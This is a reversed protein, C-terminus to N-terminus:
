KLTITIDGGADSQEADVRQEKMLELMALFTGIVKVRDNPDEVIQRFTVAKQTQLSGLIRDIFVEIPISHYLINISTDLSIAKSLRAWLVVLDWIEMDRMPEEETEGAIKMRPRGFRRSQEEGRRGLARARDKYIKYELLRRILELSTDEEEEEEDDAAEAPLLSRTKILLLQSAVTLFDGALDIDIKQMEEIFSIYQHAVEALMVRTIDIESEKVLHLLLDLPGYYNELKIRYPSTEVAAM